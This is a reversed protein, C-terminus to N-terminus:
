LKYKIIEEFYTTKGDVAEIRISRYDGKKFRHNFFAQAKTIKTKTAEIRQFQDDKTNILVSKLGKYNERIIQIAKYENESLVARFNEIKVEKTDCNNLLDELIDNISICFHPKKMYKQYDLCEPTKSVATLIEKSVPLFTYPENLFFLLSVDDQHCIANILLGEFVSCDIIKDDSKELAEYFENLEKESFRDLLLQKKELVVRKYYDTEIKKLLMLQYTTIIEAGVGLKLLQESLKAWVYDILSYHTEQDQANVKNFFLNNKGTQVLTGFFSAMDNFSIQPKRLLTLLEQTDHFNQNYNSLNIM